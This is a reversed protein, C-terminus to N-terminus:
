RQSALFAEAVRAQQAILPLPTAELLAKAAAVLKADKKARGLALLVRGHEFPPLEGSLTRALELAEVDPGQGNAEQVASKGLLALARSPHRPYVQAFIELAVQFQAAAEANKGQLLLAFALDTRGLVVERAKEGKGRSLVAVSQALEVAAEQPRLGYLYDDGLNQQIIATEPHAPGYGVRAAALARTHAEIAGNLDGAMAQANALTSLAASTRRDDAGFAQTLRTVAQQLMTLAEKSKGLESLSSGITQQVDTALRVDHLRECAGLAVPGLTVVQQHHGRSYEVNLLESWAFARARDEQAVEALAIAESLTAAGAEYDSTLVQHGGLLARASAMLHPEALARAAADAESAQKLAEPYRGAFALARATAMTQRVAEIAATRPAFGAETVPAGCSDPGQLSQTAAVARTVLAQDADLLQVVLARAERSADALCSVRRELPVASSRECVRERQADFAGQWTTLAVAVREFTEDAYGLGTRHFAERSRLAIDQTWVPSLTAAAAECQAREGRRGGVAFAATAVVTTVAVAAILWRLDRARVRALQAVVEEMSSFRADPSESLGRDLLRTLGGPISRERQAPRGPLADFLSEHLSAFFAWQDSKVSAPKGARQEPAFYVPTGAGPAGGTTNWRALGFDTVRVRGDDGVLVNGPKVDGHVIGAAHAAALGKGVALYADVLEKWTRPHAQHWQRLTQGVVLEMAIFDRGNASVVDYVPVVNPHALQAMVKAEGLLQGPTGDSLVGKLAVLRDLRSDYAAYVIGMGGASLPHRVEYPGIRTGRPMVDSWAEHPKGTGPSDQTSWAAMTLLSVFERCRACEDIHREVAAREADGLARSAFNAATDPGICGEDAMGDVM